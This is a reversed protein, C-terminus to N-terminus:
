DRADQARVDGGGLRGERARRIRRFRRAEKETERRCSIRRPGSRSRAATNRARWSAIPPSMRRPESSIPSRRLAHLRSRLEQRRLAPRAGLRRREHDGPYPQQIPKPQLYGKKIKYFRGEHDFEDDETWLRKVIDLWEEAMDYRDDHQMLEVGFMEIEPKNWGTVINLTFRGGSIHDIVTANSRPSSRITSRARALDRRRRCERDRARHGRGLHLDRLRPGASEHEGGFGRWRAVPVLAEFEMTTPSSRWRWRTRGASRWGARSTPCSAATTSIPRSPASSSSAATSRRIPRVGTANALDRRGGFYGGGNQAMRLCAAPVTLPGRRIPTAPVPAANAKTCQVRLTAAVTRRRGSRGPRM